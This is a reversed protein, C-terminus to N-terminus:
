RCSLSEAQLQQQAVADPLDLKSHTGHAHQWRKFAFSFKDSFQLCHHALLQCTVHLQAARWEHQGLM